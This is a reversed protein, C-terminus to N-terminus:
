NKKSYISIAKSIFEATGDGHKDINNKFREDLVYMQGLGVLIEDTCTYYNDSILKQLEKVLAQAEYSNASHGREKCEAFKALVANLEENVQRWKDVNYNVTKKEYEQYATTGVWHRKVEADYNNM